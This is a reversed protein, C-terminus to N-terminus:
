EGSTMQQVITNLVNGYGALIIRGNEDIFYITPTGNVQFAKANEDTWAIVPFDFGEADVMAQIEETTGTSVMVMGINKFKERFLNLDPWLNQCISCSVSSFVLLYKKDLIEESVLGLLSADNIELKPVVEGIELLSLEAGPFVAIIRKELNIVRILIGM